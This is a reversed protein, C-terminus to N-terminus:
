PRHVERILHGPVKGRTYLESNGKGLYEPNAILNRPVEVELVVLNGFAGVIGAIEQEVERLPLGTEKRVARALKEVFFRKFEGGLMGGRNKYRPSSYYRAMLLAKDLHQWFSVDGEAEGRDGLALDVARQLSEEPVGYKHAIEVQWQRYNTRDVGLGSGLARKATEDSTLHYLRIAEDSM